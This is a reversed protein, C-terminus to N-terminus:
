QVGRDEGAAGVGVQKLQKLLGILPKFADAVRPEGVQRFPGLRGDTLVSVENVQEVRAVLFLDLAVGAPVLQLGDRGVAGGVLLGLSVGGLSGRRRLSDASVARSLRRAM